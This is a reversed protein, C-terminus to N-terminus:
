ALEGFMYFDFVTQAEDYSLTCEKYEGWDARYYVGSILEGHEAKGEPSSFKLKFGDAPGGTSLVIDKITFTDMCLPDRYNEDKFPEELQQLKEIEGMIEVCGFNVDDVYNKEQTKM